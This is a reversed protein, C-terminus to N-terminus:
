RGAICMRDLNDGACGGGLAVVFEHLDHYQRPWGEHFARAYGAREWQAELLGQCWKLYDM